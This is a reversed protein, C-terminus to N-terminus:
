SIFFSNIFCELFSEHLHHIGDTDLMRLKGNVDKHDKELIRGDDKSGYKDFGTVWAMM